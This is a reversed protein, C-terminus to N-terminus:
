LDIIVSFRHLDESSTKEQPSFTYDFHAPGVLAGAGFSLSQGLQRGEQQPYLAYGARLYYKNQFGIEYGNRVSFDGHIQNVTELSALVKSDFFIMSVGARIAAPLREETQDFKLNQGLNVAAVGLTLRNLSYTAGMDVAIATAKVDTLSEMIYKATLGLSLRESTRYAASLGVAMDFTSSLEGTPNDYEDYGEIAGYSLYSTGVGLTLKESVPYAISLYEFNMDQYWAFHSFAIQPSAISVLGAPNWYSATADNAISTYAGGLAAARAGVGINLFDAAAVGNNSGAQAAGALLTAGFLFGFVILIHFSKKRTM